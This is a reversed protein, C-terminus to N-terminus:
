LNGLSRGKLEMLLGENEDDIPILKTKIVEPAYGTPNRRHIQEIISHEISLDGNKKEIKMAHRGGDTRDRVQYVQGFGGEGLLKEVQYNGIIAGSSVKTVSPM